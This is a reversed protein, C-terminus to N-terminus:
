IGKMYITSVLDDVINEFTEDEIEDVTSGLYSKNLTEITWDNVADHFVVKGDEKIIYETPSFEIIEKDQLFEIVDKRTVEVGKRQLESYTM